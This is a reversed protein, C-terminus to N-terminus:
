QCKKATENCANVCAAVDTQANVTTINPGPYNTQPNGSVAGPTRPNSSPCANLCANYLNRCPESMNATNLTACSAGALVALALTVSRM